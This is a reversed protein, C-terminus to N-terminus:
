CGEVQKVTTGLWSQVYVCVGVACVLIKRMLVKGTFM